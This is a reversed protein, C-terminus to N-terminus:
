NVLAKGTLGNKLVVSYESIWFSLFFASWFVCWVLIISELKTQSIILIILTLFIDKNVM